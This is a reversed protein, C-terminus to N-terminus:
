VWLKCEGQSPESYGGFQMHGSCGNHLPIIILLSHMWHSVQLCGRSSAEAM